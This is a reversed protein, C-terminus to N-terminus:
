GEREREGKKRVKHSIHIPNGMIDVECVYTGGDEARLETIELGFDERLRLRADKRVVLDGATLVRSDRKWMLVFEGLNSVHCPLVLSDGLEVRFM